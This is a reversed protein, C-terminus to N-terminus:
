DEQETFALAEVAADVTAASLASWSTVIVRDGDALRVRFGASEPEHGSMRSKAAEIDPVLERLTQAFEEADKITDWVTELCLLLGEGRELLAYRDGGWGSAADNTFRLGLIGLPSVNMGEREEFPTTLLAAYLEGLTDERLVRWGEPLGSVDCTVERPEDARTSDWYKVPHLIQETSRPPDTFAREIDWTNAPGGLASIRSQRRLFSQGQHYIAVIPKWVFPPASAVAANPLEAQTRVVRNLEEATLHQSAWQFMLEMGSGEVVAHLALSADSNEAVQEAIGDLDHYQDDLAHTFEHAMIVRVLEQDVSDMVYFTGTHPDYFGGVQEGLVDMTVDELDMDGPILGLLHALHQEHLLRDPGASRALRERTHDLFTKRDALEVRVPEKFRRGRLNEVEGRITQATARLRQLALDGAAALEDQLPARPSPPALLAGLLLSVVPSPFSM